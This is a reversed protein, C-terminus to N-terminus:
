ARPPSALWVEVEIRTWPNPGARLTAIRALLTENRDLMQSVATNAVRPLYGLKHGNWDIRVAAPDYPNDPERVLSLTQQQELQPWLREGQHYQFGALPSRQLLTTPQPAAQPVPQPAPPRSALAAGPIVLASIRALGAIFRRRNTM